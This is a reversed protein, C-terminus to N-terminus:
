ISISAQLELNHNECLLQLFRFIPQVLQVEPAIGTDSDKKKSREAEDVLDTGSTASVNGSEGMEMHRQRKLNAYAKLTVEAADKMQETLEETFQGTKVIAAVHAFSV